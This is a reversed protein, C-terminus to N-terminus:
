KDWNENWQSILLNYNIKNFVIFFHSSITCIEKQKTLYKSNVDQIYKFSSLTMLIQNEKM